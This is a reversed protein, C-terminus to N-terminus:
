FTLRPHQGKLLLRNLCLTQALLYTAVYKCIPNIFRTMFTNRIYISYMGQLQSTIVELIRTRNGFGVVSLANQLSSFCFRTRQGLTINFGWPEVLCFCMIPRTNSLAVGSAEQRKFRKFGKQQTLRGKQSVLFM